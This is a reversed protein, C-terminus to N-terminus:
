LEIGCVFRLLYFYVIDNDSPRHRLCLRLAEPLKYNEDFAFVIPIKNSVVTM